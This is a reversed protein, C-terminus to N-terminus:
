PPNLLGNKGHYFFAWNERFHGNKNARKSNKCKRHHKESSAGGRLSSGTRQRARRRGILRDRLRSRSQGSLNAAM